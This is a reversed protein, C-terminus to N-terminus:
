KHDVDLQVAEYREMIAVAGDLSKCEKMICQLRLEHDVSRLGDAGSCGSSSWSLREQGEVM